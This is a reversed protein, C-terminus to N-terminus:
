LDRSLNKIEDSVGPPDWFNGGLELNLRVAKAYCYARVPTLGLTNLACEKFATIAATKTKPNKDVYDYLKSIQSAAVRLTESSGEKDATEDASLDNVNPLQRVVQDAWIKFDEIKAREIDTLAVEEAPQESSLIEAAKSAETAPFLKNSLDANISLNIQAPSKTKTAIKAGFFVSAILVVLSLIIKETRSSM